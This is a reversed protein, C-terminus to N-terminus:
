IKRGNIEVFEKCLLFGLSIGKEGKTGFTTLKEFTNFIKNINEKSIGVGVDNVSVIISSGRDV